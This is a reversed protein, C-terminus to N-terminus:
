SLFSTSNSSDLIKRRGRETKRNLKRELLFFFHILSKNKDKSKGEDPKEGFEIPSLDKRAKKKPRYMDFVDHERDDVSVQWLEKDSDYDCISVNTWSFKLNNSKMDDSNSFCFEM